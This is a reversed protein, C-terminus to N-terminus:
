YRGELNFSIGHAWYTTSDRLFTPLPAGVLMDPPIQTPNVRLDIQDAARWVRSWLLFDYGLSLSLNDTIKRNLKVGILSFTSFKSRRYTGLNSEQTLLGGPRTTVTGGDDTRTRGEIHTELGSGGLALRANLSLSVIHDIPTEIEFGVEAGHFTNRTDFADRLDIISGATAGTLPMTTERSVVRDGLYAFRYGLLYDIRCGCYRQLLHRYALASTHMNTDAQISLSGEIEDPFAILRSDEANDEVNFFPRALIPHTLQNGRFDAKKEGFFLYSLELGSSHGADLWTGLLFKGGGRAGGNIASGGLLTDTTSLGLVGAEDINTGLPSTTAMPPLDSTATWGLLYGASFYHKRPHCAQINCGSDDLYGISESCGSGCCLDDCAQDDFLELEPSEQEVSNPDGGDQAFLEGSPGWALQCLLGLVILLRQSAISFM